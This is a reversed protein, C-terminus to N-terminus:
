DIIHNIHVLIEPGIVRSLWRIIRNHGMEGFGLEGFETEGFGLFVRTM